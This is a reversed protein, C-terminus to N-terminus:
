NQIQVAFRLTLSGAPALTNAASGCSITSGSTSSAAATGTLGSAACTAGTSVLTTYAPAADSISVNSVPSAANNTAVVEYYICDGPAATQTTTMSQVSIPAGGGVQVGGVRVPRTRRREAIASIGQHDYAGM